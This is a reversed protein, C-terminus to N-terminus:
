WKGSYWQAVSCLESREAMLSITSWEGVQGCGTDIDQLVAYYPTVCWVGAFHIRDNKVREYDTATDTPNLWSLLRQQEVYAPAPESQAEM